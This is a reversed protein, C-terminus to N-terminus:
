DSQTDSQNERVRAVLRSITATLKDRYDIDVEIPNGNEGGIPQTIKGEVRDLLQSVMQPQGKASGYLIAKAVLQRWTKVGDAGPIAADCPLDLMEKIITTISYDKTPRGNPNRVEGKKFPKLNKLSNPNIKREKKETNLQSKTM